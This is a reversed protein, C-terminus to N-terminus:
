CFLLQLASFCKICHQWLNICTNGTNVQKWYFGGIINSTNIRGPNLLHEPNEIWRHRIFKYKSTTKNTAPKNNATNRVHYIVPYCKILRMHETHKSVTRTGPRTTIRIHQLNCCRSKRSANEILGHMPHSNGVGFSVVKDMLLPKM